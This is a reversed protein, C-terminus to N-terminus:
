NEVTNKRGNETVMTEDKRRKLGWRIEGRRRCTTRIDIADRLSSAEDSFSSTKVSISVAPRSLANSVM